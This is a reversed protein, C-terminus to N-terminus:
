STVGACTGYGDHAFDHAGACPTNVPMLLRNRIWLRAGQECSKEHNMANHM